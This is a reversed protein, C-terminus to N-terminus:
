NSDYAPTSQVNLCESSTGSNAPMGNPSEMSHINTRESIAMIEYVGM